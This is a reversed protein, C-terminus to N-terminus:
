RFLFQRWTWFSDAKKIIVTPRRLLYCCLFHDTSGRISNWRNGIVSSASPRRLISFWKRAAFSMFHCQHSKKGSIAQICCPISSNAPQNRSLDVTTASAPRSPHQSWSSISLYTISNMFFIKKPKYNKLITFYHTYIQNDNFLFVLNLFIYKNRYYDFFL